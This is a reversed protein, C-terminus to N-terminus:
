NDPTVSYGFTIYLIVDNINNVISVMQLWANTTIIQNKEDKYCLAFSSKIIKLFPEYKKM